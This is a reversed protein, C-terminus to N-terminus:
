DTPPYYKSEWNPEAGPPIIHANLPYLRGKGPPSANGPAASSLEVDTPTIGFHERFSRTFSRPHHFGLEYAIEKVSSGGARLRRMAEQMKLQSHYAKPSLGFRGRFTRIFHDTSLRMQRALAAVDLKARPDSDIRWRLRQWADTTQRPEAAPSAVTAILSLMGFVAQRVRLQHAAGRRPVEVCLTEFHASMERAGAAGLTLHQPIPGVGDLYLSYLNAPPPALLITSAFVQTGAVADYEIRGAPRFCILDGATARFRGAPTRARIEGAELLIFQHGPQRFCHSRFRDFYWCQAVDIQPQLEDLSLYRTTSRAEGM